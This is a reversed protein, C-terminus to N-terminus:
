EPEEHFIVDDYRRSATFYWLLAVILHTFLIVAITTLYSISRWWHHEINKSVAAMVWFYQSEHSPGLVKNAGEYMAFNSETPYIRWFTFLTNRSEFYQSSADSLIDAPVEPFDRYFSSAQGTYLKNNYPAEAQGSSFKEKGRDPNALYLGGADLLFVDEGDRALRRVEELFYSADIVSVIVEEEGRPWAGSGEARYPVPTAYFLAASGEHAMIQSIYIEGDSLTRARSVTDFIAPSVQGCLTDGSKEQRIRMFCNNKQFIYIEKYAENRELFNFFDAHRSLTKLFLLDKGASGPFDNMVAFTNKLRDDIDNRVMAERLKETEAYRFSLIIISLAASIGILVLALAILQNKSYNWIM